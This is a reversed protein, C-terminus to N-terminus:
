WILDLTKGCLPVFIRIRERGDTLQDAYRLLLSFHMCTVNLVCVCVRARM